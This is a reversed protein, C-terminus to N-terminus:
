ICSLRCTLSQPLWQSAQTLSTHPAVAACSPLSPQVDTLGPKGTDRQQASLLYKSGSSWMAMPVLAEGALAQDQYQRLLAMSQWSVRTCFRHLGQQNAMDNALSRLHRKLQQQFAQSACLRHHQNCQRMCVQVSSRALQLPLVGATLCHVTPTLGFHGRLKM